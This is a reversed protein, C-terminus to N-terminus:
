TIEVITQRELLSYLTLTPPILTLLFPLSPLSLYKTSRLYAQTEGDLRDRYSNGNSGLRTRYRRGRALNSLFRPSDVILSLFPNSRPLTYPTPLSLPCSFFSVSGNISSPSLRPMTQHIHYRTNTNTTSISTSGISSQMKKEVETGNRSNRALKTKISGFLLWSSEKTHGDGLSCYCYCCSGVDLTHEWRLCKTM